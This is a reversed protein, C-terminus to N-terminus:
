ALKLHLISLVQQELSSLNIVSSVIALVHNNIQVYIHNQKTTTTVHDHHRRSHIWTCLSSRPHLFLSLNLISHTENFVQISCNKSSGCRSRLIASAIFTTFISEFIIMERGQDLESLLIFFRSIDQQGLNEIRQSLFPIPARL